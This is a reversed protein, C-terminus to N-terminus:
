GTSVLGWPPVEVVLPIGVLEESPWNLDLVWSLGQSTQMVWIFKAGAFAGWVHLNYEKAEVIKGLIVHSM